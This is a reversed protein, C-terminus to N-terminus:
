IISRIRRTRNKQDSIIVCPKAEGDTGGLHVLASTSPILLPWVKEETAKWLSSVYKNNWAFVTENFLSDIKLRYLTWKSGTESWVFNVFQM